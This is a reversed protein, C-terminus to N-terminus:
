KVPLAETKKNNSSALKVPIWGPHAAELKKWLTGNNGLEGFVLAKSLKKQTIIAWTQMDDCKGQTLQVNLSFSQSKEKGPAILRCYTNDKGTELIYAQQQEDYYAVNKQTHLDDWENATMSTTQLLKGHFDTRKVTLKNAKSTEVCDIFQTNAPANILDPSPCLMDERNGDVSMLKVVTKGDKTKAYKNSRAVIINKDDIVNMLDYDLISWNDYSIFWLKQPKRLAYQLTQEAAPTGPHSAEQAVKSVKLWDNLQLAKGEGQNECGQLCGAVLLSLLM